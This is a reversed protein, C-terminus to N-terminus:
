WLDAPFIIDLSVNRDPDVAISYTVTDSAPEYIVRLTHNGIPVGAYSFRGQSDPNASAYSIGGSGNPYGLLITVSDPFTGPPTQRDADVIWGSVSNALLAASSVAFLKDINTGSGTSRILTDVLTYSVNWADKKFDGTNFGSEVYPGDWTAWGGPNQVLNDLSIPLVGNDGVFGFDSRAGDAYIEPNGTIAFALNDLEKKTQEFRATEISQNMKVTAITGLVGLILIVVVLEILTFGRNNVTKWM